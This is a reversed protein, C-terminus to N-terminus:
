LMMLGLSILPSRTWTTLAPSTTPLDKFFVSELKSAYQWARTAADAKLAQLSALHKLAQMRQLEKQLELLQLTKQLHALQAM